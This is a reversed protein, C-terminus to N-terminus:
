IAATKLQGDKKGGSIIIVQKVSKQRDNYENRKNKDAHASM